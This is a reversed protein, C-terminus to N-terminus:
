GQKKKERLEMGLQRAAGLDDRNAWHEKIKGDVIRYMHIHQATFPRGDPKTVNYIGSDFPVSPSVRHRGNVMMRCVVWDGAAIMKKLETHEHIQVIEELLKEIARRELKRGNNVPEEDWLDAAAKSDHANM